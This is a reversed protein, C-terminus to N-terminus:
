ASVEPADAGDISQGPAPGPPSRRWNRPAPPASPATPAAEPGPAMAALERPATTALEHELQSAKVELAVRTGRAFLLGEGRAAGLLLQREEDSLKFAEAVAGITSSDQKMLLKVAANALVTRGHPSGLFDAVDQTICVLGLYYKRARRAMGSLFAAGEPHQVLTWAEDVVLLRPRRARRVQNWVFSAVQHIALPRLEAELAQVNFVVLPRDLAVNTPADFLGRLSGEVYRDLEAALGDATEGPQEALADRLDRLLPAPRAHTAPDATIGARRYTEYLARDLVGRERPGLPREPAALMVDLLAMLAAVREALPDRGDADAPDPPPLDFPNIRQPSSVALRVYQGDVAACLRRYEDEPDVVVVGVGNVLNRLAVLKTFFSKGAGSRAFVAMNANEMSPDFPDILIPSRNRRATGYLVGGETALASSCLALSMALSTTDLLRHARLHDTGEPLCSRFGADQEWRAVRSHALVGDLVSEVRRTVDDLQEPTASRLLVYAGVSFLKEEGRQLADRLREADEFAVEREPDALRGARADFLRSSQYQALERTLGHVMEGPERPEIHQSVDHPEEFEVLPQTWGPTVTRPYGTLALVRAYQSDLRVHDRAVDFAGPAILDAIRRTGRAFAAQEETLGATRAPQRRRISVFAM